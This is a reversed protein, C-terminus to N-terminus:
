LANFTIEFGDLQFLESLLSSMEKRILPTSYQPKFESGQAQALSSYEFM